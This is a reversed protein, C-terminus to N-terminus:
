HARVIGTVYLATVASAVCILAAATYVWTSAPSDVGLPKPPAGVFRVSEERGKRRYRVSYVPVREILLTQARIRGNEPLPHESLLRQTAQKLAADMSRLHEDTLAGKDNRAGVSTVPTVGELPVEPPALAVVSSEKHTHWSVTLRQVTYTEGTEDCPKCPLTGLKCKACPKIKDGNCFRCLRTAGKQDSVHGMGRCSECPVRTTGGCKECPAEGKGRCLPCQTRAGSKPEDFVVRPEDLFPDEPQAPVEWLMPELDRPPNPLADPQTAVVRTLTRYEVSTELRARRLSEDSVDEVTLTTDRLLERLASQAQDVSLDTNTPTSREDTM